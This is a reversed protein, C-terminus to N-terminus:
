KIGGLEGTIEINGNSTITLMANGGMGHTIYGFMLGTKAVGNLSLKYEVGGEYKFRFYETVEEGPAIPPFHYTRDREKLVLDTVEFASHNFVTVVSVSVIYMVSLVGLIAAPFNFLLIGLLIGVQKIPYCHGSKRAQLGYVMLCGLGAIFLVLGVQINYIGAQMLWDARSVLWSVFILGGTM